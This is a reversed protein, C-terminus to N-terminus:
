QVGNQSGIDVTVYDIMGSYHQNTYAMIEDLIQKTELQNQHVSIGAKYKMNIWVNNQDADGLFDVKVLGMGVLFFSGIFILWFIIIVM